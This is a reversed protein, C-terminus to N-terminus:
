TRHRPGSQAPHHDAAETTSAGALSTTSPVMEPRLPAFNYVYGAMRIGIVSLRAALDAVDDVDSDHPVVLMAADAHRAINSPYAFQLLPPADILILDFEERAKAFFDQTAASRFVESATMSLRGRGILAIEVRDGLSLANIAGMPDLGIDVMETLGPYPEHGDLLLTSLGQDGFDGDVLLVRAGQQAAAIGTNAVVTTKGDGVKSSVAMFCRADVGQTELASAAFRFAEAAASVQRTLVPLASAIGEESFVPVEALLPSSLILEPEARDVFARRRQARMYAVAGGALLGLIAAVAMSSEFAPGTPEAASAPSLVYMGTSALDAELVVQDRRVQLEGRRRLVSNQAEILVSQEPSQQGLGQILTVTELQRTIADIQAQIVAVQDPSTAAAQQAWLEVLRTTSADILARLEADFGSQEQAASIESQIAALEDNMSELSSDLRELAATSSSETQSTRLEEYATLLSDTVVHAVEPDQARFSVEIISGQTDAAVDTDAMISDADVEASPVRSAALEAAREAVVASRLIAAQEAVYREPNGAGTGSVAEGGPDDVVLTATSLYQPPRSVAYLFGLATVSIVVLLAIRRHRWIAALLGSQNLSVEMHGRHIAEVSSSAVGDDLHSVM